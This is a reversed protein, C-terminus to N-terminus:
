VYLLQLQQNLHPLFPSCLPNWGKVNIIKLQRFLLFYKVYLYLTYGSGVLFPYLIIINPDNIRPFFSAGKM